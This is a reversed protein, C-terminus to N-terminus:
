SQEHKGLWFRNSGHVWSGIGGRDNPIYRYENIKFNTLKSQVYLPLASDFDHDILVPDLHNVRICWKNLAVYIQGNPLLQDFLNDLRGCLEGLEVIQSNNFYMILNWPASGKSFQDWLRQQQGVTDWEAYESINLVSSLKQKSLWASFEQEQQLQRGCAKKLQTRTHLRNM